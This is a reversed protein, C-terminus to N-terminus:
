IGGFSIKVVKVTKDDYGYTKSIRSWDGKSNLIARVDMPAIGMRKSILLIDTISNESLSRSPVHKMVAMDTM